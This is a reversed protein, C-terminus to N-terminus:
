YGTDTGTRRVNIDISSSSRESAPMIVPSINIPRNSTNEISKALQGMAGNRGYATTTAAVLKELHQSIIKLENYSGTQGRAIAKEMEQPSLRALESIQNEISKNYMEASPPSSRPGVPAPTNTTSPSPQALTNFISPKETVKINSSKTLPSLAVSATDKSPSKLSDKLATVDDDTVPRFADKIPQRTPGAYLDEGRELREARVMTLAQNKEEGFRRAVSKQINEDSNGFQTVRSGYLKRIFSEPDKSGSAAKMILSTAALSGHQVATSWVVDQLTKSSNVLDKIEDPLNFMVPDYHTAKIFAHEYDGMLGESVIKNWEEPVGGSKSGTNSKGAERLRQAIKAGNGGQSDLFELFKSFTGRASSIQYKGYSTGGQRDYGIAGSGSKNSEHLASLSGLGKWDYGASLDNAASNNEVSAIMESSKRSSNVTVSATRRSQGKVKATTQSIVENAKATSGTEGELSTVDYTDPYPTLDTGFNLKSVESIFLKQFDTAETGELTIVSVYDRNFMDASKVYTKLVPLFRHLVWANFHSVQDTDSLKVRFAIALRDLNIETIPDDYKVYRKFKAWRTIQREAKIVANRQESTKMGYAKFRMSHFGDGLADFTSTFPSSVQVQTSSGKSHRQTNIHNLTQKKIIEEARSREQHPITTGSRKSPDSSLASANTLRRYGEPYPVFDVALELISKSRSKFNTIVAEIQVDDWKNSEDVSLRLDGITSLYMSYIRLFRAKLWGAVYAVDDDSAADFGLSTTVEKVDDINFVEAGAKIKKLAKEELLLITKVQDKSHNKFGYAEMRADIIAKQPGGSAYDRYVLWGDIGVSAATGLGPIISAAGSAIEGLAGLYDGDIARDIGFGAGAVLGILPIKKVISKGGVKAITKVVATGGVKSIAKAGVRSISKGAKKIVNKASTLKSGVWGGAATAGLWKLIGSDSDDDEDSEADSPQKKSGFLSTLSGLAGAILGKKGAGTDGPNDSEEKKKEQDRLYERWSGERYGDDDTDGAIRKPLRANLLDYIAILKDGVVEELDKKAIGGKKGGGFIAGFIGKVGGFFGGIMDKYTGLLPGALKLLGKGVGGVAKVGLGLAGLLGKTLAPTVTGIISAASKFIQGYLGFLPNKGSFFNSFMRGGTKFLSGTLNGITGLASTTRNGVDVGNVDVLGVDIDEKSILVTQTQPDIVPRDIDAVHEVPEGDVFVLGKRLQKSTILPYGFRVDDKRYVDVFPNKLKQRFPSAALNLAGRSLSLGGRAATMYGKAALGTLRGTFRATGGLIGGLKSLLGQKNPTGSGGGDESSGMGGSAAILTLVELIKDQRDLSEQGYTKTTENLTNLIDLIDSSDYGSFGTSRRLDEDSEQFMKANKLKDSLTETLSDYGDRLSAEKQDHKESVFNAMSERNFAGPDLTAKYLDYDPSIKGSNSPAQSPTEPVDTGFRNLFEEKESAALDNWSNKLSDSESANSAAFGEFTSIRNEPSMDQSYPPISPDRELPSSPTNKIYKSVHDKLVQLEEWKLNPKNFVQAAEKLQEARSKAYGRLQKSYGTIQDKLLTYQEKNLNSMAQDAFARVSNASGSVKEYADTVRTKASSIVDKLGLREVPPGESSATQSSPTNTPRGTLTNFKERASSTIDGAKDVFNNLTKTARTKRYESETMGSARLSEALNERGQSLRDKAGQARSRIGRATQAGLVNSEMYAASIDRAPEVINEQMWPGFTDLFKESVSEGVKSIINKLVTERAVDLVSRKRLESSATNHKIAELKAEIMEGVTETVKVHAKSLYLQQYQLGLSNAMYQTQVSHHFNYLERLISNTTSSAKFTATSALAQTKLVQEMEKTIAQTAESEKVDLVGSALSRTSTLSERDQDRLLEDLRHNERDLSSEGMMQYMRGTSDAKMLNKQMDIISATSLKKLEQDRRRTSSAADITKASKEKAIGDSNLPEKVTVTDNTYRSLLSDLPSPKLATKPATEVM